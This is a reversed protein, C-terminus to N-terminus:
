TTVSKGLKVAVIGQHTPIFAGHRLMISALNHVLPLAQAHLYRFVTDSKWRGQLQIKSKDVNGCILAMAGGSRLSRASVDSPSYNLHPLSATAIRLTATILRSTVYKWNNTTTKVTGIPTTPTANHQKLYILRRALTLTPCAVSHGSRGHGIVEGRERNKQKGLTLSSAAHISSGRAQQQKSRIQLVDFLPSTSSYFFQM